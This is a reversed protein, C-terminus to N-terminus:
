LIQKIQKERFEKPSIGLERAFFSSFGQPTKFGVKNAVTNIKWKTNILYEKAKELRIKSVFQIPTEGFAKKFSKLFYFKNIEILNSLYDLNIDKNYNYYLYEKSKNLKKILEKSMAKDPENNLFNVAPPINNIRLLTLLLMRTSLKFQTIGGFIHNRLPNLIHEALFYIDPTIQIVRTQVYKGKRGNGNNNISPINEENPQINEYLKDIVEYKYVFTSVDFKKWDEVLIKHNESLDMLLGNGSVLTYQEKNVEIQMKGSRIIQFIIRDSTDMFNNKGSEKWRLKLYLNLDTPNYKELIEDKINHYKM